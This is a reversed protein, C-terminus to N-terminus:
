LWEEGNVTLSLEFTGTNVVATSTANGRFHSYEIAICGIEIDDSQTWSVSSAPANQGFAGIRKIDGTSDDRLLVAIYQYNSSVSGGSLLTASFACSAGAPIVRGSQKNSIDTTVGTGTNVNAGFDTINVYRKVNYADNLAPKSNDIKITRGEVALKCLNFDLSGQDLLGGKTKAEEKRRRLLEGM